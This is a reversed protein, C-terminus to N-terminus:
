SFFKKINEETAEWRQPCDISAKLGPHQADQYTRVFYKSAPKGAIIGQEVETRWVDTFLAPLLEGTAGPLALAYRVSKDLENEKFTEHGNFVCTKDSMRLSFIIKQWINLYVGWSPIEMNGTKTPFKALIHAQIIPNLTTTTDLVITDFDPSNCAMELLPIVRRDLQLAIPIPKGSDDLHVNEFTIHKNALNGERNFVKTPGALNQDINLIFPRPLRLSLTTKGTGAPGFILISRKTPVTDITLSPM